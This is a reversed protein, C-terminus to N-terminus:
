NHISQLVNISLIVYTILINISHLIVILVFLQHLVHQVDMQVYIVLYYLLAPQIKLLIIVLEANLVLLVKVHLVIEM